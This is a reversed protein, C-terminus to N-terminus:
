PHCIGCPSYGKELLEERLGTYERRNEEKMGKVGSCDPSHFKLSSTNLVYTVPEGQEVTGELWSEGTSYDIVIGPQSNYVYVNFCIGEGRDEVSYAEMQVGSAVLNDEQYVPTVRYLVHNETGERYEAVQNEFPLMGELNMYRTGTILNDPNDNEGALQFGILHCRHYLYGGSVVDYTVSHWGSPIVDGIDGREETPMLEVSLNAYAVGCRGLEDLPSYSEFSEESIDSNTFYPQNDQLVVYAEGQFDPIEELTVTESPLGPTGMENPISVETSPFVTQIPGAPGSTCGWLSILLAGLLPLGICRLRRM